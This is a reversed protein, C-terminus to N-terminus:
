LGEVSSLVHNTFLSVVPKMNEKRWAMIVSLFDDEVDILRFNESHHVRINKDVLAVGVGMEVSLLISDINPLQKVVKPTFGYLRCLRMIGDFGNPSEDRSIMVFNQDKFDSLSLNPVDILPNSMGMILSGNHEYVKNTLVGQVNDMEFSLTFILDFNGNILKERLAKFGLRELEIQVNPHETKFRRLLEPLFRNTEVADLCGIRLTENEGLQPSKAKEVAKEIHSLIGDLEKLLVAGAPTLRVDRKNRMFLQVGIENELSAIQKSLAPQTVYLSKAAETFNLYKAVAFFYDIQLLTIGKYGM